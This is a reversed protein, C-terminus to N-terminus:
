WVQGLKVGKRLHLLVFSWIGFIFCFNVLFGFLLTNQAMFVWSCLAIANANVIICGIEFSMSTEIWWCVNRWIIENANLVSICDDVCDIITIRKCSFDIGVINLVTTFIRVSSLHRLLYVRSFKRLEVRGSGGFVLDTQVIERFCCRVIQVFLYDAVYIFDVVLVLYEIILRFVAISWSWECFYRCYILSLLWLLRILNIGYSIRKITEVSNWRM